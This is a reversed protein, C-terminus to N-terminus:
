MNLDFHLFFFFFHEQTTESTVVSTCILKWNQMKIKVTLANISACICFVKLILPYFTNCMIIMYYKNISLHITSIDSFDITVM